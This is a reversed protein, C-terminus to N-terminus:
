ARKLPQHQVGARCCGAKRLVGGEKAASVHALAHVHVRVSYSRLACRAPLLRACQQADNAHKAPLKVHKAPLKLLTLFYPLSVTSVRFLCAVCKHRLLPPLFMLCTGAALVLCVIALAVLM